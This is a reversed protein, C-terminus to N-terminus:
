LEDQCYVCGVFRNAVAAALLWSLIHLCNRLDALCGYCTLNFSWGVTIPTLFCIECSFSWGICGFIDSYGDWVRSHFMFLFSLAFNGALSENCAPKLSRQMGPVEPADSQDDVLHGRFWRWALDSDAPALVLFQRICDKARWPPHDDPRDDPLFSRVGMKKQAVWTLHNNFRQPFRCFPPLLILGKYVVYINHVYIDATGAAGDQFYFKPMKKPVCRGTASSTAKM